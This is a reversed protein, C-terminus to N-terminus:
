HFYVWDDETQSTNNSSIYIHGSEALINVRLLNRNNKVVVDGIKVVGCSEIDRIVDGNSVLLTKLKENYCIFLRGISVVNMIEIRDDPCNEIQLEGHISKILKYLEKLNKCKTVYVDGLFEIAATDFTLERLNVFDCKELNVVKQTRLYLLDSIKPSIEILEIEECNIFLDVINPISECRELILNHVCIRQELAKLADGNIERCIIKKCIQGLYMRLFEHIADVSAFTITDEILQSM